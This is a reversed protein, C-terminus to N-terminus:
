PLPMSRYPHVKKEPAEQELLREVVFIKAETNLRLCSKSRFTCGRDYCAEPISSFDPLCKRRCGGVFFAHNSSAFDVHLDFHFVDPM